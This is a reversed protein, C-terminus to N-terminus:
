KKLQAIRARFFDASQQDTPPIAAITSELATIAAAKDDLAEAAEAIQQYLSAKVNSPANLVLAQLLAAAGATDGKHLLAQAQSFRAAFALPSDKEDDAVKGFAEAAKAWDKMESATAGLELQASNTLESPGSAIFGELAAARKAPDQMSIIRGLQGRAETLEKEVYWQWGAIALIIVVMSVVGAAIKPAHNTV